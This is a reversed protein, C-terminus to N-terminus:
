KKLNSFVCRYKRIRSRESLREWVETGLFTIFSFRYREDLEGLLKNVGKNFCIAMLFDLPFRTKKTKKLLGAGTGKGM